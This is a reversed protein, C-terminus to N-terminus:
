KLPRECLYRNQGVLQLFLHPQSLGRREILPKKGQKHSAFVLGKSCRFWFFPMLSVISQYLYCYVVMRVFKGSCLQITAIERQRNVMDGTQVVRILVIRSGSSAKYVVYGFTEGPALMRLPTGKGDANTLYVNNGWWAQISNLAITGSKPYQLAFFIIIQGVAVGSDLGASLVYNYKAWWSFHRRRIVYQFIFGVIAWCVYNLPTAPPINGTGSFLVPFNVYRAWSNPWKRHALWALVPAIVGVLFFICLSFYLQGKSFQRSPGIVGWIVSATGFVETSPCIFGNKQDPSCMDDINSFMWAQVALQATGAVATAAVQCWFM